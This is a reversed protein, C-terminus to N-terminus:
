AVYGTIVVIYISSGVKQKAVLLQAEFGVQLHQGQAKAFSTWVISGKSHASWRGFSSCCKVTKHHKTLQKNICCAFWPRWLKVILLMLLPCGLALLLHITRPSVALPSTRWQPNVVPMGEVPNCRACNFRVENVKPREARINQVYLDGM